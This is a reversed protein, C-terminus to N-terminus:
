ELFKLGDYIPTTLFQNLNNYTAFTWKLWQSGDCNGYEYEYFFDYDVDNLELIVTDTSYNMTADLDPHRPSKLTFSDVTESLKADGCIEFVSGYYHVEGALTILCASLQKHGGKEFYKNSVLVLHESVIMSIVLYIIVLQLKNM